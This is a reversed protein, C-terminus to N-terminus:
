PVLNLMLEYPGRGGSINSKAIIRYTGSSTLTFAQILANTGGGSSNDSTVLQGGFTRLELFADLVTSSM